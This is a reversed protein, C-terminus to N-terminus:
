KKTGPNSGPDLLLRPVALAPPKETKQLREADQLRERLFVVDRLESDLRGIEGKRLAIERELEGIEQRLGQTRAEIEGQRQIADEVIGSLRIQVSELTRRMVHMVLEQNEAPLSRLLEIAQRVSFRGEPAGALPQAAPPRQGLLTPASPSAQPAATQGSPSSPVSFVQSATAGSMTGGSAVKIRQSQSNLEIQEVPSGFDGNKKKDFLGM